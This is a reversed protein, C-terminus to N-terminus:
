AKAGALVEQEFGQTDIKIFIAKAPSKGLAGDLRVVPVKLTEVTRSNPDFKGALESLPRFSSFVNNKAVHIELKGAKSGVGVNSVHWPPDGAGHDELEAFAAPLPEFSHIRGRYRMSRIERAFQGANAGVDIVLDVGRTDLFDWLGPEQILSLGRRALYRKVFGRHLISM